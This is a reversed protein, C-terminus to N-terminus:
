FCWVQYGAESNANYCCSAPPRPLPWWGSNGAERNSFRDFTQAVRVRKVGPPATSQQPFPTVNPGPLTVINAM